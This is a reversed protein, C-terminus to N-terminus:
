IGNKKAGGKVGNYTSKKNKKAGGKVRYFTNMENKKAGKIRNYYLFSINYRGM